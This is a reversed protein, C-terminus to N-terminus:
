NFKENESILYKLYEYDILRCDTIEDAINADEKKTVVYGSIEGIGISKERYKPFLGVKFNNNSSQYIIFNIYYDNKKNKLLIRFIEDVMLKKNDSILIIGNMCENLGLVLYTINKEDKIEFKENESSKSYKSDCISKIISNIKIDYSTYHFHFHDLSNGSRHSFLLSGRYEFLRFVDLMDEIVHKNFIMDQDGKSIYDNDLPTHFSYNGHYTSHFMYHFPFYPFGNPTVIYNRWLIGKINNLEKSIGYTFVKCM